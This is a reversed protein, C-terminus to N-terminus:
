PKILAAFQELEQQNLDSVVWYQMGDRSWYLIRYGREQRAGEYSENSPYLFVNIYHQNRRYILTAVTQNDVFDLRGGALPFGKDAYNEVPPSFSTKGNFWPKVTHQDTSVVDIGRNEMLMSRVYDDTAARAIKVSEPTHFWFGLISAALLFAVTAGAFGLSLDKLRLWNFGLWRASTRKEEGMRLEKRVASVLEPPATYRLDANQIASKLTRRSEITKTCDPCEALHEELAVSQLVDVENDVYADLIKKSEQCQM